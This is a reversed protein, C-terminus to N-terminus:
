ETTEEKKEEPKYDSLLEVAFSFSSILTKIFEMAAYLISVGVGAILLVIFMAAKFMQGVFKFLIKM